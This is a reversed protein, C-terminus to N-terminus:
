LLNGVPLTFGFPNYNVLGIVDYRREQCPLQLTM